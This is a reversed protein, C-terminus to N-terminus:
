IDLWDKLVACNRRVLTELLLDTHATQPIYAAALLTMFMSSTVNKRYADRADKLTYDPQIKAISEACIAIAQEECQARESVIVSSSILYAIDAMADGVKCSAWDIIYACPNSGGSNEFMINDARCDSHTLTRNKPESDLWADIYPLSKDIISREQKSLREQLRDYINAVGMQHVRPHEDLAWELEGLEPSNWFHMHFKLLERIAAIAQAADIGKIQDGPECRGSLDEMLINSRCGDDSVASYYFKPARLGSIAPLIHTVEDECRYAGVGGALQAVQPNGSHIKFILSKPAHKAAECYELDLRFTDNTNGNGIPAHGVSSINPVDLGACSLASRIWAENIDGIGQLLAPKM